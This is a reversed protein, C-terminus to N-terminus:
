MWNFDVKRSDISTIGPNLFPMDPANIKFSPMQHLDTQPIYTMQRDLFSSLLESSTKSSELAQKPEQYMPGHVDVSVIRDPVLKSEHSNINSPNGIKTQYIHLQQRDLQMENSGMKLSSFSKIQEEDISGNGRLVQTGVTGTPLPAQLRITEFEFPEIM